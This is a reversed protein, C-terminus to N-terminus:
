EKTQVHFLQFITKKTQIHNPSFSNNKLQKQHESSTNYFHTRSSTKATPGPEASITRKTNHITLNKGKERHNM